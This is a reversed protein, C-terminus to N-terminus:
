IFNAVILDIFADPAYSANGNIRRSSAEAIGGRKRLL